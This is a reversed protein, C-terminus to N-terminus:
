RRGRSGTDDARDEVDIREKRIEDHVQREETSSETSLRVSEVPVSRKTVVPRDDHLTIEADEEAFRHGEAQSESAPGREVRAREHTLTVTADVPETEVSKHLKAKGADVTEIDVQLEEEWRTLEAESPSPAALDVESEDYHRSVQEAEDTTLEADAGIAPAERVVNGRVALALGSPSLKSGSLPVVAERDGFSRAGVTVWSPKSAGEDFFVRRVDGIKQGRSDFVPQGSLRGWKERAM